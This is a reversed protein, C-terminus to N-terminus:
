ESWVTRTRVASRGKVPDRRMEGEDAEFGVGSCRERRGEGVRDEVRERRLERRAGGGTASCRGVGRRTAGVGSEARVTQSHQEVTRKLVRWRM